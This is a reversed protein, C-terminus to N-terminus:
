WCNTNTYAGMQQSTCNFGSRAAPAPPVPAAMLASGYGLMAAGKAINQEREALYSQELNSVCAQYAYGTEHQCADGWSAMRAMVKEETSQCAALILVTTCILFPSRM